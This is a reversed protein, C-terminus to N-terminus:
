MKKHRIVLSQKEQHHGVMGALDSMVPGDATTFALFPIAHQIHIRRSADWVRLGENQLATLHYLGPFIFSDLNKPKNPGPVFGGPIVYRKKYRIDPPLNHIIYIYMFCDSEKDRFLQAGDLSIQLMIDNDQIRNTFVANLYDSGSYVDDYFDITNNNTELHSIIAKTRESRHRMLKATEPSRYLAQIIPGIPITHFRRQPIRKTRSGGTDKYRAKFCIPCKDLDSFPGTFAACSDICMDHIIPIVGSIQEVRRKIQDYSLFPSDRHRKMAASRFTNFTQQSANSVALFAELAFVFDDDHVDFPFTSPADRLRQIDESQMNSEDLAATKLSEIFRATNNIEGIGSGLGITPEDNYTPPMVQVGETLDELTNHDDGEPEPSLPRVDLDDKTM